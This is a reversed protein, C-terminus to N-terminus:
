DRYAIRGPRNRGCAARCLRHKQRDSFYAPYPEFYNLYVSNNVIGQLDCEYDRVTFDLEYQYSTEPNHM